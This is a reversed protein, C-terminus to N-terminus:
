SPIWIRKAELIEARGPLPVPEPSGTFLVLGKYPMLYQWRPQFLGGRAVVVLPEEQKGLLRLFDAAELRVLAGSAKIAQAIAAAHAAAGSTM